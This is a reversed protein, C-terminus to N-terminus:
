DADYYDEDRMLVRRLHEFDPREKYPRELM